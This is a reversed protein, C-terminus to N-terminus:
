YDAPDDQDDFFTDGDVGHTVQDHGKPVHGRRNAYDNKEMDDPSHAILGSKALFDEIESFPKPYYQGAQSQFYPSPTFSPHDLIVIVQDGLGFIGTASKVMHTFTRDNVSAFIVRREETLHVMERLTSVEDMKFGAASLMKELREAEHKVGSQEPFVFLQIYNALRDSM